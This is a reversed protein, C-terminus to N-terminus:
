HAMEGYLPGATVKKIVVSVQSGVVNRLSPFVVIKNREDRGYYLGKKTKFEAIVDVRRGLYRKNLESNIRKQIKLLHNIRKVKINRPIDDAFHRSAFTGSRPSYIALNLREFKMEEVFHVTSEFDEETEGPFGVIIDSSVSVNPVFSRIRDVLEKFDATTYRRNMLKLIRDSGSQVPIHFSKAAKQNEAVEFILEETIDTPYSTLFWVRLLDDFQRTSRILKALSTGDKLDKGYADVNQGLFTIQNAGEEVRQEVEKIVDAMERSRERGRTYPVICYTCFRNCGHIITIWAHFKSSRLHPTESSISCIRDELFVVKEGKLARQVVRHIESISRSGLVFDAGRLLLDSGELNAGCGAVGILKLAGSKKMKRLIGLMTHFKDQSKQRVVCTNLIAIDADDLNQTISFGNKALIGSIVETDSLNMQCGYTKVYVKMM